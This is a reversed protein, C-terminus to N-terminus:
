AKEEALYKALIRYQATTEANDTGIGTAISESTRAMRAHMAADWAPSDGPELYAPWRRKRLSTAPRATGTASKEVSPLATWAPKKPRRYRPTLNTKPLTTASPQMSRM